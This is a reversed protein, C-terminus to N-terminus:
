DESAGGLCSRDLYQMLASSCFERATSYCDAQMAEWDGTLVLPEEDALYFVSSETCRALCYWPGAYSPAACWGERMRLEGAVDSGDDGPATATVAPAALLMTQTYLLAVLTAM